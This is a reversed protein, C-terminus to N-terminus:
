SGSSKAILEEYSEYNNKTKNLELPLPIYLLQILLIKIKKNLLKIRDILLRGELGVGGGRSIQQLM